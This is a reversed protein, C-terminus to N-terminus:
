IPFLPSRRKFKHHTARYASMASSLCFRRCTSAILSSCCTPCRDPSTVALAGAGTGGTPRFIGNPPPAVDEPAQPPADVKVTTNIIVGTANATSILNRRLALAYTSYYENMWRRWVSIRAAKQEVTETAPDGMPDFYLNRYRQQFFSVQGKLYEVRQEAKVQETLATPLRDAVAKRAQYTQETKAILEKQPKVLLYFWALIMIVILLFTVGGLILLNRRILSEEM